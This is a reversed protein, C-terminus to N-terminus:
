ATLGKIASNPSRQTGGHDKASVMEFGSAECTSATAKLRVSSTNALDSIRPADELRVRLKPLRIRGEGRLCASNPSPWAIQSTHGEDCPVGYDTLLGMLPRGM